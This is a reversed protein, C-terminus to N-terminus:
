SARQLFMQNQIQIKNLNLATTIRKRAKQAYINALENGLVDSHGKIYKISINFNEYFTLFKRLKNIFANLVPNIYKMSGNIASIIYKNDTYICINTYNKKQAFEIAKEIALVEAYLAGLKKKNKGLIAFGNKIFFESDSEIVFAYGVIENSSFRFSGDTYINISNITDSLLHMISKNEFSRIEKQFINNKIHM